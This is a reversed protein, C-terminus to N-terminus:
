TKTNLIVCEVLQIPEIKQPVVENPMEDKFTDIVRPIFCKRLHTYFTLIGLSKELITIYSFIRPMMSPDCEYM